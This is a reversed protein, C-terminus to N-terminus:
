VVSKLEGTLKIVRFHDPVCGAQCILKNFRNVQNFLFSQQLIIMFFLYELPNWIVLWRVICGLIITLDITINRTFVMIGYIPFFYSLLNREVAATWNLKITGNLISMFHQYCCLLDCSSVVHLIFRYVVLLSCYLAM